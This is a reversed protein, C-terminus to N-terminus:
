QMNKACAHMLAEFLKIPLMDDDIEPSRGADAVNAVQPWHPEAQAASATTFVVANCSSSPLVVVALFRFNSIAASGFHLGHQYNAAMAATSCLYSCRCSVAELLSSRVKLWSSSVFYTKSPTDAYLDEIQTNSIQPTLAKPNPRSVYPDSAFFQLM